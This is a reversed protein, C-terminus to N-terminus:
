KKSGTKRTKGAMSRPTASKKVRTSGRKPTKGRARGQVTRGKSRAGLRKPMELSHGQEAARGIMTGVAGGVVAGIPGAVAAGLMAGTAGGAVQKRVHLKPDTKGTTGNNKM